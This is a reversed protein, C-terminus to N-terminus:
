IGRIGSETISGLGDSSRGSIYRSAQGFLAEGNVAGFEPRPRLNKNMERLLKVVEKMWQETFDERKKRSFLGGLLGGGIMGIPGAFAGLAPFISPLFSAGLQSGFNVAEPDGGVQRGLYNGILTGGFDMGASQLLHARLQRQTYTRGGPGAFLRGGVSDMERFGNALLLDPTTTGAMLAALLSVRGQIGQMTQTNVGGFVSQGFALGGGMFLSLPNNFLNEAGGAFGTNLADLRRLRNFDTAQLQAGAAAYIAQTRISRRRAFEVDRQAMISKIEAPSKGAMSLAIYNGLRFATEEDDLGHLSQTLNNQIGQRAQDVLSTRRTPDYGFDKEFAARSQDSQRTFGSLVLRDQLESVALFNEGAANSNAARINLRDATQRASGYLNLARSVMSAALIPNVPAVAAADQILKDAETKARSIGQDGAFRLSDANSQFGYATLARGTLGYRGLTQGSAFDMSATTEAMVKTFSELAKTQRVALEKKIREFHSQKELEALAERDAQEQVQAFRAKAASKQVATANPNNIVDFYRAQADALRQARDTRSAELGQEFDYQQLGVANMVSQFAAAGPDLGIMSLFGGSKFQYRGARRNEVTLHDAIFGRVLEERLRAQEQAKQELRIQENIKNQEIRYRDVTGVPGGGAMSVGGGMAALGTPDGILRAGVMLRGRNRRMFDSYSSTHVGQGSSSEIITDDGLYMVIHNDGAPGDFSKGKSMMVVDGPQLQNLPVLRKQDVATHYFSRVNHRTKVFADDVAQDAQQNAYELIKCVLGSCDIGAYKDNGGWKYPTNTSFDFGDIPSVGPVNLTFRGPTNGGGYNGTYPRIELKTNGSFAPNGSFNYPAVVGASPVAAAGGLMQVFSVMLGNLNGITANVTAVDTSLNKTAEINGKTTEDVKGFLDSLFNLDSEQVKIDPFGQTKLDGFFALVKEFPDAVMSALTSDNRYGKIDLGAEANIKALQASYISYRLASRRSDNGPASSLRGLAFERRQIEADQKLIGLRERALQNEMQKATITERLTRLSDSFEQDIEKLRQLYTVQAVQKESDTQAAEIAADLTLKAGARGIKAQQAFYVARYPDTAARANLAAATTTGQAGLLAQLLASRQKNLEQKAQEQIGYTPGEANKRAQELLRNFETPNSNYLPGYKAILDSSLLDGKEAATRANRRNKEILRLIDAKYFPNPGAATTGLKDFFNDSIVSSDFQGLLMQLAETPNNTTVSGPVINAYKKQIEKLMSLARTNSNSTSSLLDSVPLLEELFQGTQKYRETTRGSALLSDTRGRTSAIASLAAYVAAPSSAELAKGSLSSEFESRSDKLSQTFEQLAKNTEYLYTAFAAVALVGTAYGGLGANNGTKDIYAQNAAQYMGGAWRYGAVGAITGAVGTLPNAALPTLVKLAQTGFGLVEKSAQGLNRGFEEIVGEDQLVKIQRMFDELAPLYGKLAEGGIAIGIQQFQDVARNIRSQPTNQLNQLAPEFGQLRMNVYDIIGQPGKNKAAAYETSDFGLTRLVQSRVTINGTALDRIDSQIATPQYGMAKGISAVKDVITASQNFSLGKSMLAAGGSLVYDFMEQTTLISKVAKDRIGLYLKDSEKLAMNFSQAKDLTKGQLDYFTGYTNVMGALTNKMSQMEAQQNVTNRMLGTFLGVSGMGYLSMGAMQSFNTILHNGTNFSTGYLRNYARSDQMRDFIGALGSRYQPKLQQTRLASSVRRVMDQHVGSAEERASIGLTQVISDSVDRDGQAISRNAFRGIAWRGAQLRGLLSELQDASMTNIDIRGSQIASLLRATRTAVMGANARERVGYSLSTNRRQIEAERLSLGPENSELFTDAARIERRYTARQANTWTTGSKRFESELQDRRRRVAQVSATLAGERVTSGAAKEANIERILRKSQRLEANLDKIANTTVRGISKKDGLAAMEVTVAALTKQLASTASTLVEVNKVSRRYNESNQLYESASRKAAKWSQGLENNKKIASDILKIVTNLRAQDVGAEARGSAVMRATRENTRATLENRSLAVGQQAAEEKVMRRVQDRLARADGTRFFQSNAGSSLSSRVSEQNRALNAEVRAMTNATRKLLEDARKRVQEAEALATKDVVNATGAAMAGTLRKIEQIVESANTEFDFAIKNRDRPM